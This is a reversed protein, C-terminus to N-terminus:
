EDRGARGDAAEARDPTGPEGPSESGVARDTPEAASEDWVVTLDAFPGDQLFRVRGDRYLDLLALFRGVVVGRSGADAVLTAFSARGFRALRGALLTAQEAVSVPPDHVHDTAVTPVPRPTLARAALEALRQPTIALHLPPRLDAFRQELAVQRPFSLEARAMRDAIAAAAETFAKYQLLRAFLVDREELLAVDAEDEVEGTPLLRAAKLDLLTAAVVVFATAEDLDMGEDMARVHAVFDDTVRALAVETVDLRHRAILQLLLDFPGTFNDLRVEFKPRGAAAPTRIDSGTV